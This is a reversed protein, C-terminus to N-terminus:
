HETLERSALRGDAGSSLLRNNWFCISMVGFTSIPSTLFRSQNKTFTQQKHAEPFVAVEGMDPVSWIRISGDSSGSALINLSDDLAMARVNLSHAPVTMLLKQM